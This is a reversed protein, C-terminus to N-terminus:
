RFRMRDGSPQTPEPLPQTRGSSRNSRVRAPETQTRRHQWMAAAFLPVALMALLLSASRSDDPLREMVGSHASSGTGTNPLDVSQNCEYLFVDTNAGGSVIVRSRSDVREAAARCWVGTDQKLEYYGDPLEAFVLVGADDPAGNRSLSADSANLTFASGTSGPVCEREWDEISAADGECLFERVTISGTPGAPAAPAPQVPVVFWSCAIQEGEVNVFTTSGSQIPKQYVDGDGIQCFVAINAYSAPLNPKMVYDGSRLEFFRVAGDGSAGTNASLPTGGPIGLSVPVDNVTQACERDLDGFSAGATNLNPDCEFLTVLIEAKQPAETPVPTPTVGSADEGLFYWDCLVSQQEAITFRAIGGDMTADIRESTAPDTCYLEVRGFDQPPGGALTYDGAPLESFNALGPGPSTEVLTTATVEGNPGTLTFPMDGIGNGHCDNFLNSGEYNPPCASLHVTVTAGTEEGRLNEPVIYWSCEVTEDPLFNTFSTVGSTSFDKQYVDGGDVSCFIYETAAELPVGSFVGYDGLLGTFTVNGNADSAGQFTGGAGQVTMGVASTPSPCDTQFQAFGAGTPDYGLECTFVHLQLTATGQVAAASVPPQQNLTETSEATPPVTPAVTATPPVTTPAVTAAATATPAPTTATPAVTATPATPEAEAAYVVFWDCEVQEGLMDRFTTVGNDDFDKEYRPQGEYTCFLYDAGDERPVDSFVSYDGDPLDEFIVHGADDIQEEVTTGDPRTLTFTIPDTPEDTCNASLDEFTRADTPLDARDCSTVTFDFSAQEAPTGQDDPIVYLDCVVDEGQTVTVEFTKDDDPTVPVTEERDFFECGVVFTNQDGPIDVEVRYAGGPITGTNVIGPGAGDVQVTTKPLDVGLAPDVSTITMEVGATGNDHCLDRLQEATGTTGPECTSVHVELFSGTGQAVEDQAVPLGAQQAAAVEVGIPTLSFMLMVLGLWAMVRSSHTRMKM